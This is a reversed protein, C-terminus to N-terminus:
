YPQLHNRKENLHLKSIYMIINDISEDDYIHEVHM